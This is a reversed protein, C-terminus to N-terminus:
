APRKRTEQFGPLEQALACDSTSGRNMNMHAIPECGTITGAPPSEIWLNGARAQKEVEGRVTEIESIEQKSRGLVDCSKRAVSSAGIGSLVHGRRCEFDVIAHEPGTDPIEIGSLCGVLPEHNARISKK